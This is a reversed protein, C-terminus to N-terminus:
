TIFLIEYVVIPSIATNMINGYLFLCIRLYLSGNAVATFSIVLHINKCPLWMKEKTQVFYDGNEQKEFM